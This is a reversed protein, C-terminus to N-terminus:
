YKHRGSERRWKGEEKEGKAERGGERGGIEAEEGKEGPSTLPLSVTMPSGRNVTGKRSSRVESQKSTWPRVLVNALRTDSVHM